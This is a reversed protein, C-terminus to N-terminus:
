SSLSDHSAVIHIKKKFFLQNNEMGNQELTLYLKLMGLLSISSGGVQLVNQRLTVYISAYLEIMHWSNTELSNERDGKM